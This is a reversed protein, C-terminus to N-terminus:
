ILGKFEKFEKGCLSNNVICDIQLPHYYLNYDTDSIKYSNGGILKFKRCYIKRFSYKCKFCPIQYSYSSLLKIYLIFILIGM